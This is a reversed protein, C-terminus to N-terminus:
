VGFVLAFCDWDCLNLTQPALETGSDVSHNKVTSLRVDNSFKAGRADKEM